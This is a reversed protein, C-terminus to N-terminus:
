SDMGQKSVARHVRQKPREAPTNLNFHASELAAFRWSLSHVGLANDLNQKGKGQQCETHAKSHVPIEVSCGESGGKEGDGQYTDTNKM